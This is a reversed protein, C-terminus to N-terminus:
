VYSRATMRLTKLIWKNPKISPNNAHFEQMDHRLYEALFQGFAGSRSIGAWCHVLFDKQCDIKSLWRLFRTADDKTFCRFQVDHGSGPHVDEVHLTFLNKPNETYISHIFPSALGSDLLSVVNFREFIASNKIIAGNAHLSENSDMSMVLSEVQQRSAVHIM